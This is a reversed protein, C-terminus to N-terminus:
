REIVEEVTRRPTPAVDKAYGLRLVLQPRGAGALQGVQPRLEEVEVPQNLFAAVVDETTARLLIRGLAQGAALWDAPGDGETTIVALVPSGLALEEDRAARGRGRDFTRLAFPGLRSALDSHGFASGPMGDAAQSRNSHVWAALERRFSPDEAQLRDAKAVLEALRAREEGRELVALRAGEENAARRLESLVEAPVPRKAFRRRNTRRTRTAWFLRSEDHTPKVEAGLRVRALLDQDAPYPVPEVVTEYGVHKLAARLFFLAAGCGIVLERDYPDVVSLARTRDARLELADGNVRFRWPQANRSSPARVAYTVAWELKEADTGNLPFGQPGRKITRVGDDVPHEIADMAEFVERRKAADDLLPVYLREQKRFHAELVAHLGYLLEQLTDVEEVPTDRLAQAHERVVDHDFVLPATAAPHRLRLAVAPFLEREEAEAHRALPGEVFALVREIRQGREPPTLSPVEAAAERIDELESRFPSVEVVTM